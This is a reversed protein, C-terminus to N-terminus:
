LSPSRPLRGVYERESVRVPIGAIKPLPTAIRNDHVDLVRLCKLSELGIKSLEKLRNGALNLEELKSPYTSTTHMLILDKTGLVEVAHDIQEITSMGTPTSMSSQNAAVLNLDFHTASAATTARSPAFPAPLDVKKFVAEPKVSGVAPVAVM